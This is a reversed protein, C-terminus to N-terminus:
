NQIAQKLARDRAIPSVAGSMVMPARVYMGNAGSPIQDFNVTSGMWTNLQTDRGWTSNLAFAAAAIRTSITRSSEIFAIAM